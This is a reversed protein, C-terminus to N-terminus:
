LLLIYNQHALCLFIFVRDGKKEVGIEKLVNAVQNSREKMEKFTYKENRSADQYYLAVKNKESLIQM